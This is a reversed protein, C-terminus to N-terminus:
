WGETGPEGKFPGVVEGTIWGGYYGGSQPRVREDDLWYEDVRAPYFSVYGALGEYGESPVPYGWAAREAVADGVVVDYHAATGKWECVTRHSSRRLVDLRVDDPPLYYSPPLSTELVRVARDSDAIVEGAHVM